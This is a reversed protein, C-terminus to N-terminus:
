EKATAQLSPVLEKFHKSNIMNPTSPDTYQSLLKNMEGLTGQADSLDKKLGGKGDEGVLTKQADKLGSTVSSTTGVLKNVLESINNQDKEVKKVYQDLNDIDSVTFSEPILSALVDSGASPKNHQM